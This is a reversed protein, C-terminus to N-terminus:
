KGGRALELAAQPTMLHRRKFDHLLHPQDYYGFMEVADLIELRPSRLLEQWLLQYRIVSMVAKPSAGINECFLRQLRKETCGTHVSLDKCSVRGQSVIIRHISNMLNEDPLSLMERLLLGEAFRANQELSLGRRLHDGMVRVFDPFLAAAEIGRGASGSLTEPTFCKVAWLYFRVSFTSTLGGSDAQTGGTWGNEDLGCFYASVSDKILDVRFIIDMCGDPIVLSKEASLPQPSSVPLATGWFCRVFPKLAACPPIESYYLTNMHPQATAPRFLQTLDYM